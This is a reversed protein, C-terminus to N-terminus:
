SNIAAQNKIEASKGPDDRLSIQRGPKSQSFHNASEQKGGGSTM